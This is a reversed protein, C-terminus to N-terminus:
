DELLRTYADRVMALLEDFAEDSVPEEADADAIADIEIVVADDELLAYRVRETQGIQATVQQPARNAELELGMLLFERERTAVAVDAADQTPHAEVVIFALADDPGAYQLTVHGKSTVTSNLLEVTEDDNREWSGREEPLYKVFESARSKPSPGCAVLLLLVALLLLSVRKV